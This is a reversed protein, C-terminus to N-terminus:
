GLILGTSSAAMWLHMSASGSLRNGVIVCNRLAMERSFCSSAYRRRLSLFGFWALAALLVSSPEPVIAAVRFGLSSTGDSPFFSYRDSARLDISSTNGWAGGRLGRSSSLVATENWELVNGGQDFTGYYSPSSTYAGVDTLYNQSFSYVTAGTVAYGDDYGNATNDNNYFNGVRTNAPTAGPPQDSYPLSNSTMPYNWFSDSDGGQAAPQHYAAKYWENETPIFWIAGAKRTVAMLASTSTAGNLAYAGDETTSSNQPGSPQGNHLWNAFRAADGWSVYTVPHNASGIVSYSYSGSAGSRNIGAINVDTAMSQEYLAYTDTVAVANLFATYQGVTVEYKGILYATGVGGYLNGTAPDNPNGPSGVTVMDITVARAHMPDLAVM